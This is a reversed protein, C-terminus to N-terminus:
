RVPLHFILLSLGTTCFLITGYNTYFYVVQKCAYNIREPLECLTKIM